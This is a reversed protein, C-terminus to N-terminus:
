HRKKPDAWWRMFKRYCDDCIVSMGEGGPTQHQPADGRMGFNRVAEAHAEEDSRESEFTDGCRACTYHHSMM